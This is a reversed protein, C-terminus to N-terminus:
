QWRGGELPDGVYVPRNVRIFPHSFFEECYSPMTDDVVYVEVWADPISWSRRTEEQYVPKMKPVMRSNLSAIDCRGGSNVIVRVLSSMNPASVTPCLNLFAMRKSMMHRGTIGFYHNLAPSCEGPRVSSSLCLIAECALRTLGTLLEGNARAVPVLPPLMGAFLFVLVGFGRRIGRM